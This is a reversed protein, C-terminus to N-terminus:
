CQSTMSRHRQPINTFGFVIAVAGQEECPAGGEGLGEGADMGPGAAVEVARGWADREGWRRRKATGLHGGRGAM